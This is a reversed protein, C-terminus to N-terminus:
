GAAVLPGPAVIRSQGRTAARVFVNGAADVIRYGGPAAFIGVALAALPLPADGADNADGFAFVQGALTLLWYGRGDPTAAMSVVPFGPPSGGTSGQFHADGFSFIGGDSAVFWYGGSSPSAAMAVIPKNLHIGGTSGHFRADGFSFIGGDRAVLWYGHGTPTAAIGVIPQNLRVAGMSGYFTADGFAFVGGDAAAVWGGHTSKTPAVGVAQTTLGARFVTGSGTRVEGFRDVVFTANSAAPVPPHPAPGSGGPPPPPPPLEFPPPPLTVSLFRPGWLRGDLTAEDADLTNVNFSALVKGDALPSSTYVVPNYTYASHYTNVPLYSAPPDAITFINGLDRWPGAPTPSWWAEVGDGFISLPKTVL